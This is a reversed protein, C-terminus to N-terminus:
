HFTIKGSDPTDKGCLINFLTTKGAGNRAVIAIKQEKALQFSVNELLVLEGFSKSINDAQLYTIM